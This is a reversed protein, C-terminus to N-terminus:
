KRLTGLEDRNCITSGSSYNWQIEIIKIYIDQHDELSGGSRGGPRSERMGLQTATSTFVILPRTPACPMPWSRSSIYASRGAFSEHCFLFWLNRKSPMKTIFDRHDIQCIQERMRCAKCSVVWQLSWFSIWLTFGM